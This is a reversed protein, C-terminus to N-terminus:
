LRKKWKCVGFSKCFDQKEKTTFFIVKYNKGDDSYVLNAKKLIDENKWTKDLTIINIDKERDSASPMSNAANDRYSLYVSNRSSDEVDFNAESDKLPFSGYLNFIADIDLEEKIESPLVTIKLSGKEDREQWVQPYTIRKTKILYKGIEYSKITDKYNTLTEKAAEMAKAVGAEYGKNYGAEYGRKYFFDEAENAAFITSLFVFSILFLIKRM